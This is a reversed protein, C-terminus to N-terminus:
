KCPMGVANITFIHVMERGLCGKALQENIEQLYLPAVIDEVVVCALFLALENAACPIGLAMDEASHLLMTFVRAISAIPIVEVCLASVLVSAM